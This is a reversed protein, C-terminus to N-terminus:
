RRPAELSYHLSARSNAPVSVSWLPRGDRRSLETGPVFIMNGTDFEAEYRIPVNRSNAVVIEGEGASATGSGFSLSSTVASATGVVIEVPEGVAKDELTGRGVLMERGSATQFLVIKGSPLPLGLGSASDNRTVLVRMVTGSNRPVPAYVRQRYVSEVKVSPQQLIAVQKQSNAAVTVPEPIRYLKLDGLEEQQAMMPPPAEMIMPAPPSPPSMEMVDALGIRSGTIVLEEREPQFERLDSTTTGSPWCSLRLPEALPKRAQIQGRNLRGAVALADAHRFSTEDGNALTLWAFLGIREGDASLRAVYNAQWDFGSALYSLTVRATVRRESRVRVSLTPKASLRPPVRDYLLTESQGTCRLTEVGDPTEVVVAGAPGSRVVAEIERVKGTARSTRRLHVRKGLSAEVLSAPSLLWADQNKEVVGGPLGTVIASEPLIGGAVGEFRVDSEGKPIAVQRTESILAYGNLWRLSMPESASRYPARYVTVSVKQPGPSTAVAQAAAQAAPALLLAAALLLRGRM